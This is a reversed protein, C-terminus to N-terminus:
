LLLQLNLLHRLQGLHQCFGEQRMLAPNVTGGMYVGLGRGQEDTVLAGSDGPDGPWAIVIRQPLMSHMSRMSSVETIKTTWPKNRGHCTVDTWQAVLDLCDLEHTPGIPATPLPAVLAGDIGDPALDILEGLGTTMPVDDGITFSHGWGKVTDFGPIVHKATLLSARGSLEPKRSEAWCASTGDHPHLTPGAHLEDYSPRVIIPFHEGDIDIMLGQERWHQAQHEPNQGPAIYLLVGFADMEQEPNAFGFTAFRVGPVVRTVPQEELATELALTWLVLGMEVTGLQELQQGFAPSQLTQEVYRPPPSRDPLLDPGSSKDPDM